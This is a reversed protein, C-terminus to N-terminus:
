RVDAVNEEPEAQANEDEEGTNGRAVVRMLGIFEEFETSATLMQAPALRM